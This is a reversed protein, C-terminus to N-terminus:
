SRRPVASPRTPSWSHHLDEITARVQASAAAGQTAAPAGLAASHCCRTAMLLYQTSTNHAQSFHQAPTSDGVDLSHPPRPRTDTKNQATVLTAHNSEAHAMNQMCIGELFSPDSLRRRLRRVRCAVGHARDKTSSAEEDRPECAEPARCLWPRTCTYPMRTAWSPGCRCSIGPRRCPQHLRCSAATHRHSPCWPSCSPNACRRGEASARSYGKLRSTRRSTRIRRPWEAPLLDRLM